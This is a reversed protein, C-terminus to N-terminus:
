DVSRSIVGTVHLLLAQRRHDGLRKSRGRAREARGHEM